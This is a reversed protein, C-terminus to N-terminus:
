SRPYSCDHQIYNCHEHPSQTPGEGIIKTGTVSSANTEGFCTVAPTLRLSQYYIHYIKKRPAIIPSEKPQASDKVCLSFLYTVPSEDHPFAAVEFTFFRACRLM